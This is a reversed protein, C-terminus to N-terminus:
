TTARGSSRAPILDRRMALPLMRDPEAVTPDTTVYVKDAGTAVGISVKTGTKPDHLPGFRDNLHEILALRAPSGTPWLEGGDFWHPLRHAQGRHRRVRSLGEDQAASRWRSHAPRGFEATTDAVVAAQAHNGLVHDSPVGLGAGRVRGRRADDLHARRCLRRAVLERLDAGYQNRMWRDACIFGM